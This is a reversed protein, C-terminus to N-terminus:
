LLESVKEIDSFFIDSGLPQYEAEFIYQANIVASGIATPSVRDTYKSVKQLFHKGNEQSCELFLTFLLYEVPYNIRVYRLLQNIGEHTLKLNEMRMLLASLFLGTLAKKKSEEILFSISYSIVAQIHFIANRRTRAQVSGQIADKRLMEADTKGWIEWLNALWKISTNVVDQKQLQVPYQKLLQCHIDFVETIAKKLSDSYDEVRLQDFLNTLGRGTVSALENAVYIRNTVELNSLKEACQRIRDLQLQPFVVASEVTDRADILTLIRQRVNGSLHKQVKSILTFQKYAAKKEGRKFLLRALYYRIVVQADYSYKSFYESTIARYFAKDVALGHYFQNSVQNWIRVETNPDELSFNTPNELLIDVYLQIDLLNEARWIQADVQNKYVSYLGRSSLCKNIIAEMPVGYCKSASGDPYIRTFLGIAIEDEDRLIIIPSGSMGKLIKQQDVAPMFGDNFVNKTTIDLVLVNENPTKSFPESWFVDGCFTTFKTTECFYLSAGRIYCKAPRSIPRINFRVYEKDSILKLLAFDNPVDGSLSHYTDPYLLEASYCCASADQIWITERKAFAESINHYATLLYYEQPTAQTTQIAFATGVVLWDDPRAQSQAHKVIQFLGYPLNRM